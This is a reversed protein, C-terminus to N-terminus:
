IYGGLITQEKWDQCFGQCKAKAYRMVIKKKSFKPFDSLWCANVSFGSQEGYETVASLWDLASM